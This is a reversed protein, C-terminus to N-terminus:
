KLAKLFTKAAEVAPKSSGADTLLVSFALDAEYGVFWGHSHTGNGFQATGTKGRVDPLDRLATATGDTVVDRMMSRLSDLVDPRLPKGLNAATSPIGRVLTPTPIKGAAVTAAALAMGFPSTLVTGQGFGNEARQVVADAPPVSGTITTLGPIVFDAGVGLDRAADTLAPPPLDTALKAFTTNCSKAFATSLPVTGLEFKGENPVTRGEFTVTGPCDVPTDVKVTGAGLAAAATIIKFTSGPPFRGSLALSGQADAPENQAVALLEGTSPQIVVLAAATPVPQLAQEAATQIRASLTSVVAAATRAAEAHLEAVEGGGVDLTVVRWGAAGAVREEVLSRMAPLVQKGFDKDAPLLREQQSFRVGPLDYIAPKVQQYDGSRLNVVPYSGGPKVTKLGDRISQGTVTPEFRNLAAGLKDAVVGTDGAKAPDVVVGVVTQPKLLPMSDRDLVPALQAPDAKVALSQQAALQPHLATPLWHVKWGDQASYLQADASYTWTRAKPLHWVLKYTATANEDKTKVVQDFAEMSEPGLAARAQGLLAKAADPSDTLGAARAVDGSTLAGLFDALVDDPGPGFLGCGATTAAALAAVALLVAGRRRPPLRPPM